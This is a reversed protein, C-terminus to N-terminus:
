AARIDVTQGGGALSQVPGLAESPGTSEMRIAAIVENSSGGPVTSERKVSRIISGNDILDNISHNHFARSRSFAHMRHIVRTKTSM